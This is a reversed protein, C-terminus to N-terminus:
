RCKIWASRYSNLKSTWCIACYSPNLFPREMVVRYNSNLSQIKKDSAASFDYDEEGSLFMSSAIARMTDTPQLASPKMDFHAGLKIWQYLIALEQDSLQPKGDPPMHKKASAPLHIRQLLLSLNPETTDWLMGSRGGKTLLERTEMILEGKAKNSNHCSMCKDNLIPKVMDQFIEAQEFSIKKKATNEVPALLFNEGHTIIAGQHGAVLLLVMSVLSFVAAPIRGSFINEYGAYWVFTLISILAGSWKHWVLADSTYGPEKSLFVGMLATIVATAATSLLLWGAISEHLGATHLASRPILWSWVLFLVFLVIPFHLFLPHARGAVQLFGPIALGDYFILFFCLLCNAFLTASFLINRSKMM